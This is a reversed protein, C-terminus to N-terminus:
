VFEWSSFHFINDLLVLSSSYSTLFKESHRWPQVTHIRMSFADIIVMRGSLTEGVDGALKLAELAQLTGIIGPVAFECFSIRWRGSLNTVWLESLKGRWKRLLRSIYLASNYAIRWGYGFFIWDRPVCSTRIPCWVRMIRLLQMERLQSPESALVCSILLLHWENVLVFPIWGYGSWDCWQWLVAPPSRGASTGPVPMPFMAWKRSQLCYDAIMVCWLGDPRWESWDYLVTCILSACMEEIVRWKVGSTLLYRVRLELRQERCWRSCCLCMCPSPWASM